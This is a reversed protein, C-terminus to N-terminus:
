AKPAALCYLRDNMNDLILLMQGLAQITIGNLTAEADQPLTVKGVISGDPGLCLLRETGEDSVYVSGDEMVLIDTPRDFWDQKVSSEPWCPLPDGDGNFRFVKKNEQDLVYLGQKRDLALAFPSDLKGWQGAESLELCGMGEPSLKQIRHNFADAVYLFGDEDVDVDLPHALEGPVSGSSCLSKLFTGDSSWISIRDAGADVFYINGQVDVCMRQPDDLEGDETGMPITALLGLYKGQGDFRLIRFDEPQDLIFIKGTPTAAACIPYNLDCSDSPEIRWLEQASLSPPEIATSTKNQEGFQPSKALFSGSEVKVAQVKDRCNPCLPENSGEFEADCMECKM